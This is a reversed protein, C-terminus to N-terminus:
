TENMIIADESQYKTKLDDSFFAQDSLKLYKGGSYNRFLFLLAVLLQKFNIVKTKSL